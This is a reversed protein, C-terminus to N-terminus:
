SAKTTNLLSIRYIAILLISGAIYQTSALVTDFRYMDIFVALLPFILEVITSISAKTRKLGQYYIWLAVMGTSLAIIGLQLYQSGTPTTLSGIVGTSVIMLFALISTTVFRLGTIMTPNHSKLLYRSLATSSGWAAAAGVAYLAAIATQGNDALAVTGDPFTVFFGAGLALLAWLIHPGSIRERLLITATTIAFIPQLKQLLIVVSFPIFEVRLLATTFWLTGLLGSLLSVILVAAMDRHSLHTRAWNKIVYPIYAVGGILHEYFVIILPALSYLTTRLVGDFAWLTAAIAILLPGTQRNVIYKM